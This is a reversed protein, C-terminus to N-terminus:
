LLPKAIEILEKFNVLFEDRLEATKFALVFQQSNWDDYIICDNYVGICHKTTTRDTWDPEWGNNYCDRLQILQCLALMAAAYEKNPLLCKDKGADRIIRNNSFIGNNVILSCTYDIYYDNVTNPKLTCFEEWTKPLKNPVKFTSWDRNDKSPFLLCEGGDFAFYSGDKSFDIENGDDVTYAVIVDGATGKFKVEGCLTSYLIIGEPCNRLIASLDLNNM